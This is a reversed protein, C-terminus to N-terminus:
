RGTRPGTRAYQHGQQRRELLPETPGAGAFCQRQRHRRGPLVIPVRGRVGGNQGFSVPSPTGGAASTRALKDHAAGGVTAFSGGIFVYQGDPSVKLANIKADADPNWGGFAGTATDFSAGKRAAPAGVSFDGGAYVKGGFYDLASSAPSTPRTSAAIPAGTTPNVKVLRNVPQGNLTTFDGGVFSSSGDTTLGCGPSSGSGGRPGNNFNAM